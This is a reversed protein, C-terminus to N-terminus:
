ILICVDDNIKKATTKIMAKCVKGIDPLVTFCVAVVVVVVVSAGVVLAGIITLGGPLPSALTAFFFPPFFLYFHIEVLISQGDTDLTM